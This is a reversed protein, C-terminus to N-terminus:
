NYAPCIHPNIGYHGANNYVERIKKQNPYGIIMDYDEGTIYIRGGPKTIRYLESLIEEPKSFIQISLRCIVYDFSADDLMLATADGLHFEANKIKFEKQKSMAYEVGADSHDVGIIMRPNFERAILLSTDGCGCCIDAVNMGHILSHKTLVQKEFPWLLRTQNRLLPIFGKDEIIDQSGYFHDDHVTFKINSWIRTFSKLSKESWTLVNSIIIEIKLKAKMRSYKLFSSISQLGLSNIYKLRRFNLRVVGEVKDHISILFNNIRELEEHKHIRIYGDFVVEQDISDYSLKYTDGNLIM